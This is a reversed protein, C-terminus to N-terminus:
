LCSDRYARMDAMPPEYKRHEGEPLHSARLWTGLYCLAAKPGLESASLVTSRTKRCRKHEPNTCTVQLRDYYSYGDRHRGSVKTVRAGELVPPWLVEANAPMDGAIDDSPQEDALPEPEPVVQQLPHEAPVLAVAAAMEEALVIDGAIDPDEDRLAVPHGRALPAVLSLAFPVESPEVGAIEARLAKATAGVPPTRRFRLLYDYWASSKTSAVSEVGARFLDGLSLVCKLYSRKSVLRRDDYLKNSTPTHTLPGSHAGFGAARLADILMLCPVAPDDLGMSPQAVVPKELGICGGVDSECPQWELILHRRWTAVGCLRMIDITAPQEEIIFVDATSGAVSPDALMPAWRELPQVAVQFLVPDMPDEETEFTKPAIAKPELRLLQYFRVVFGDEALTPLSVYTMPTLAALLYQRMLMIDPESRPHKTAVVLAQEGPAEDQLALAPPLALAPDDPADPPEQDLLALHSQSDPVKSTMRYLRHRFANKNTKLNRGLKRGDTQLISKYRSWCRWLDEGLAPILDEIDQLNQELRMTSAMWPFGCARSHEFVRKASAHPGEAISDDMPVGELGRISALLLEPCNGGDPQLADVAARLATGEELFERTVRHHQDPRRARWQALCDAKVGPQDLRVLLYPVEALFGIKQRALHVSLRVCGQLDAAEQPSGGWSHQTWSRAERLGADLRRVAFTYATKLRRGKRQCPASSAGSRSGSECCDCGGIWTMIECLWTSYWLVFRFQDAWRQTGLAETVKKLRTQERTNQFPKPDFFIRLTDLIPDLARCAEALTRWRWTAITPLKLRELIEAVAGRGAARLGKCMQVVVTSARLFAVLAQLRIMWAPFWALSSLGRRLVTDWLHMWGPIELARPFTFQQDQHRINSQPAIAQWFPGIADGMNALMRETGQDTVVARVMGCFRVIDELRPGAMLWIQWLLASMKGAADYQTRELSLVPALRRHFASGDWVDFSTAFLELGRWQPSADCYIVVQASAGLHRFWQRHLGMAVCDARVRAERLTEYGVKAPAEDASRRKGFVRGFKQAAAHVKRIDKVFASAGLWDLVKDPNHLLGYKHEHMAKHHLEGREVNGVCSVLARLQRRSPEGRSLLHRRCLRATAAVMHMSVLIGAVVKCALPPTLHVAERRLRGYQAAWDGVLTAVTSPPSGTSHSAALCLDVESEAISHFIEDTSQGSSVVYNVLRAAAEVPYDIYGYMARARSRRGLENIFVVRDDGHGAGVPRWTWRSLVLGVVISAGAPITCTPEEDSFAGAWLGTASAMVIFLKLAGQSTPERARKRGRPAVLPAADDEVIDGAIDEDLAMGAFKRVFSLKLQLHSGIKASRLAPCEVCQEHSHVRGVRGM